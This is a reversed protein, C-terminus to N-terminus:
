SKKEAVIHTPKAPRPAKVNLVRLRSTGNNVLRHRTEPPMEVLMDASLTITEGGAELVGTGELIYLHFATYAVHKKQEQGPELILHEFQAAESSHLVRASIFHPNPIEETEFTKITKMSHEM